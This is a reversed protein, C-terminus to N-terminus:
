ENPNFQMIHADRTRGRLAEIPALGTKGSAHLAWRKESEDIITAHGAETLREAFRRPGTSAVGTPLRFAVGAANSVLGPEAETEGRWHSRGMWAEPLPLKRDTMPAFDISGGDSPM